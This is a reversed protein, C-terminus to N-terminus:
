GLTGSLPHNPSKPQDNLTNREWFVGDTYGQISPDANALQLRKLAWCCYEQNLEIGTFNRQLKKAVVATTGSGLFPDLVMDDPNSSALILKALLKEPKQTPHDTNEPMSWFPISIDTWINSPHTLRFNGSAEEDWDKPKGNEYRYPAIVKRKQKVSNVNFTYKGSVTCFWIDETNNKWNTKAGRGKEREWTIRSRIYFKKELLPAILISTKWDSCIYITATSKLLPKIIDLISLFWAQYEGREKEKFLHGNYNKSLNYPPDLVLLDVFGQPLYKAASFLDQNIIRGEINDVCVPSNLSLLSQSFVSLEQESCTLTRNRPARKKM